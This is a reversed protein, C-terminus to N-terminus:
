ATYEEGVILQYDEATLWGKKVANVVLTKNKMKVYLRTVADFM